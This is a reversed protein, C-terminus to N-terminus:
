RRKRVVHSLFIKGDRQGDAADLHPLDAAMIVYAAGLTTPNLQTWPVVALLIDGLGDADIDGAAAVATEVPLPAWEPAYIQYSGSDHIKDDFRLDGRTFVISEDVIRASSILHAVKMNTDEVLAFLLDDKGDGDFDTLGIEIIADVSPGRLARNVGSSISGITIIGDAAGDVENGAVGCPAEEQRLGNCNRDPNSFVNRIPGVGDPPGYTMLTAFDDAVGHGRSWRWTGTSSQWYSHGLGM